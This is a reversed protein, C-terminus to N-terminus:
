LRRRVRRQYSRYAEGYKSCMAREEFRVYWLDTLVFFALALLLASLSQIWRAVGLAISAFGLYMPNRTLRFLGDTVLQGPERFTHVNSGIRDFQRRAVASIVVGGLVLLCGGWRVAELHLSMLPVFRGLIAM